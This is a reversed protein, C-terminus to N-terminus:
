TSAAAGGRLLRGPLPGDAALLDRNDERLPVGNVIVLHIGSADVVLREQGAPFDRVRRPKGAGVTHPDFLVIDAAQGTQLRGRDTIGFVEAPRGTLMRIAQAMPIAAKERVWRGLLYTAQCADCLVSAHAGADSLGLVTNPAKLFVEVEDEIDNLLPMRFGMELESEIALDLALDEPNSGREAAISALTREELAPQRAARSVVALDWRLTIARDTARCATRFRERFGSDAFLRKRGERDLALAPKFAELSSLALSPALFSFEVMFPRPTVQPIVDLGEKALAACAALAQAPEVGAIRLKALLSTWTLKRGTRRALEAFEEVFFRNGATVQIVGRQLEGLVGALAHIEELGAMRSPVPDGDPGVHNEFKSTAFGLAGAEMGERVIARMRATEEPTAARRDAEEGMTYLRVPTHGILMGVNIATGRQEIADLYQPFTEFPWDTGLGARLADLSMGEVTQLTRMILDRHAARTPAVGFGCNGLVATTVGHWPSITMMRDWMVQADYHTHTDVFGPAVVMGRADITRAASGQADGVAVIRGGRIGLDGIRGPNGLGDHLTGGAIRIDYDYSSM